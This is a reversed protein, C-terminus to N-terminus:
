SQRYQAFIRRIQSFLYRNMLILVPIQVATMVLAQIGRTVLLASFATGFSVHLIYSNLLVSCFGEVCLVCLIIRVVTIKRKFFLGYVMGRVFATVCLLWIPSGFKIVAGLCDSLVGTIGGGIPGLIAGAIARAVFAVSYRSSDGVDVCLYRELIIEVAILLGATALLLIAYHRTERKKSSKEMFFDERRKRMWLCYSFLEM